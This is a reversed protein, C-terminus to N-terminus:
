NKKRMPEITIYSTVFTDPSGGSSVKWYSTYIQDRTLPAQDTAIHPVTSAWTTAPDPDTYGPADAMTEMLGAIAVKVSDPADCKHLLSDLIMTKSGELVVTWANTAM